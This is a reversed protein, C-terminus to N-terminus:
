GKNVPNITSHFFKALTLNSTYHTILMSFIYWHLNIYNYWMYVSGTQYVALRIDYAVVSTVPLIWSTTEWCLNVASLISVPWVKLNVIKSSSTPSSPRGECLCVTAINNNEV